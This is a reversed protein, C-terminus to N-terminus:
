GRGPKELVAVLIDSFFEPRWAALRAMRVRFGTIRAATLGARVSLEELIRRNFQHLHRLDAAPGPIRGRLLDFRYRWYALNPVTVVASGGPKLVRCTERLAHAPDYLHELVEVCCVLDYRNDPLPLTCNDMDLRWVQDFSPRARELAISSVDGGHAELRPLKRKVLRVLHGSGCGLDFLLAPQLSVILDALFPYRPAREFFGADAKAGQWDADHLSEPTLPATM